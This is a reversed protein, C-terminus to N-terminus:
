RADHVLWRVLPATDAARAVIEDLFDRKGLKALPLDFVAVLGKQKLLEARPHSPDVGPPTRKLADHATLRYGRKKLAAVIRDLEKGRQDDLLAARYKALRAPDMVYMGAGGFCETGIQLYVAVPMETMSRTGSKVPVLGSVHTKYPSKDKSFRVDRYIRFLKPEGLDCDPYKRDIRARAEELLRLMPRQWGEEFDSKHAQFWERNQNKALASFFSRKGDAFGEFRSPSSGKARNAPTRLDLSRSNKARRKTAAM